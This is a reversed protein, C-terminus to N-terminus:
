VCSGATRIAVRKVARRSNKFMRLVDVTSAVTAALLQPTGCFKCLEGRRLDCRLYSNSPKM